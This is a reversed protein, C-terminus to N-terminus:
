KTLCLIDGEHGHVARLATCTRNSVNAVGEVGAAPAGPFRHCDSLVQSRVPSAPWWCGHKGDNSNARWSTRRRNMTATNDSDHIDTDM